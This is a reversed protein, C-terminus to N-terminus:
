QRGILINISQVLYLKWSPGKAYIHQSSCEFHIKDKTVSNLKNLVDLTEKPITIPQPIKEKLRVRCLRYGDTAVAYESDLRIGHLEERYAEKHCAFSINVLWDLNDITFSFSPPNFDIQPFEEGDFIPIEFTRSNNPNKVIFVNDKLAFTVDNAEENQFINRLIKAEVCFSRDKAFTHRTKVKVTVDLNTGTLYSGWDQPEILVTNTIPVVTQKTLTSLIQLAKKINMFDM